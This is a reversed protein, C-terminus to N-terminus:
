RRSSRLPSHKLNRRQILVACDATAATHNLECARKAAEEESHRESGDATSSDKGDGSSIVGDSKAQKAAPTEDPEETAKRKSMPRSNAFSNSLIWSITRKTDCAKFQGFYLAHM